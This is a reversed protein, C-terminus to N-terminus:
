GNSATSGTESPLFRVAALARFDAPPTTEDACAPHRGIVPMTSFSGPFGITVLVGATGRDGDVLAIWCGSRDGSPARSQPLNHAFRVLQNFGQKVPFQYDLHRVLNKYRLGAM